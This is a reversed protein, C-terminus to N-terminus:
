QSRLLKQEAKDFLENYDVNGVHQEIDSKGPRQASLYPVTTWIRFSDAYYVDIPDKFKSPDTPHGNLIRDYAGQHVVYFNAAFGYVEHINPTRSIRKHHKLITVGGNFMDWRDRTSWLFPLLETFRRAADPRLVCDDELILIWPLGRDKALQICKLHSASCGKWGPKRRVASVREVSVPWGGFEEGIERMRDTRDDLNIVVTHPFNSPPSRSTTYDHVLYVLVGIILLSIVLPVAWRKADKILTM